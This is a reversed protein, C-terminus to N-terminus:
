VTYRCVYIVQSAKHNECFFVFDDYEHLSCQIHMLSVLMM